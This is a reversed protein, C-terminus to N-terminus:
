TPATSARASAASATTRRVRERLQEFLDVESGEGLEHASKKELQRQMDQLKPQFRQQDEFAKTREALVAADKERQLDETKRQLAEVAETVRKEM